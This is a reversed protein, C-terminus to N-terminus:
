DLDDRRGEWSYGTNREWTARWEYQTKSKERPLDAFLALMQIVVRFLGVAVILAIELLVTLVRM